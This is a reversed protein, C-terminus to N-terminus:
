ERSNFVALQSGLKDFRQLLTATAMSVRIQKSYNARINRNYVDHKSIMIEM